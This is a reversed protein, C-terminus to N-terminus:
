RFWEQEDSMDTIYKSLINVFHEWEDSDIHMNGKFGEPAITGHSDIYITFSKSAGIFKL